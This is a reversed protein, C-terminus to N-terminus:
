YGFASVGKGYAEFCIHNAIMLDMGTITELYDEPRMTKARAIECEMRKASEKAVLKYNTKPCLKM